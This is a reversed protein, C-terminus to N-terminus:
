RGSGRRTSAAERIVGERRPRAAAAVPRPRVRALGRRRAAAARESSPAPVRAFAELLQPVRKSANVNGFCGILPEGAVAGPAVNPRPWAPHPVVSIPGEYGAERARREVYDPTSVAGDRRPPDRRRAPLGRGRSGSRGPHAERDRAHGLLRATLGGDRELADLYAQSDRARADDRRRPPAARLRAARRGRARPAAAELIWGHAQPDNGVHYLAVDAGRPRKAGRKVVVLRRAARAPLSCRSYDAIGSPEPPMPSFYAVKM